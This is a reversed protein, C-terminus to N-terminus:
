RRTRIRIRTRTRTRTRTLAPASPAPLALVIVPRGAPRAAAPPPEVRRAYALVPMLDEASAGKETAELTELNKMWRTMLDTMNMAPDLTLGDFYVDVMEESPLNLQSAIHKKIHIVRYEEFEVKLYPSIEPLPAVGLRREPVLSFHFLISNKNGPIMNVAIDSDGLIAISTDDMPAKELQRRTIRPRESATTVASIPLNVPSSPPTPCEPPLMNLDINLLNIKGTRTTNLDIGERSGKSSQELAKAQKLSDSEPNSSAPNATHKPSNSRVPSDESRGSPDIRPCTPGNSAMVKEKRGSKSGRIMAETPVKSAGLAMSSFSEEIVEPHPPLTSSGDKDSIPAKTNEERQNVVVVKHELNGQQDFSADTSRIM